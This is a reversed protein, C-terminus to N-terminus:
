VRNRVSGGLMAFSKVLHDVLVSTDHSRSCFLRNQIQRSTNTLACKTVISEIASESISMCCAISDM